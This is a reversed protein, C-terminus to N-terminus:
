NSLTALLKTTDALREALLCAVFEHLDAALEPDKEKIEILV